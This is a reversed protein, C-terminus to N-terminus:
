DLEEIALGPMAAWASKRDCYVAVTPPPFAPDAFAGVTVAVFGPISDLEWHVTSGCKPCFHFTATGGSDGTRTYTTSAGEFTVSEKPFRAQVGFISGTRQRCALCHCMSIRVPDVGCTVRLDGCACTARREM